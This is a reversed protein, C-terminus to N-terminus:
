REPGDTAWQGDREIVLDIGSRVLFSRSRRERAAIADIRALQERGVVVSTVVLDSQTTREV